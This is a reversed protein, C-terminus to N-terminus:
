SLFTFATTIRWDLPVRSTPILLTISPALIPLAKICDLWHDSLGSSCWRWSGDLSWSCLTTTGSRWTVDPTEARIAMVMKFSWSTLSLFVYDKHCILCDDTTESFKGFNKWLYHNNNSSNLLSRLLSPNVRSITSCLSDRNPQWM